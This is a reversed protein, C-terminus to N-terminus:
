QGPEMLEYIPGVMSPKGSYGSGVLKSGLQQFSQGDYAFVWCAGIGGNDGYGGVALLDGGSSLSVSSGAFIIFFSLLFVM